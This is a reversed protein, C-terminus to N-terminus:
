LHIEGIVLKRKILLIHGLNALNSMRTSLKLNEIIRELKEVRNKIEKIMEFATELLTLQNQDNKDM